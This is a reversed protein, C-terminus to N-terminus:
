NGELKEDKLKSFQNCLNHLKVLGSLNDREVVKSVYSKSQGLALSLAKAGGHAQIVRDIDSRLQTKFQNLTM